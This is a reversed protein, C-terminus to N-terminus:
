RGQNSISNPTQYWVDWYAQSLGTMGPDWGSWCIDVEKGEWFHAPKSLLNFRINQFRLFFWTVEGACKRGMFHSFSGIQHSLGQTFGVLGFNWKRMREPPLKKHPRTYVETTEMFCELMSSGIWEFVEKIWPFGPRTSLLSSNGHIRAPFLSLWTKTKRAQATARGKETGKTGVVAWQSTEFLLSIM